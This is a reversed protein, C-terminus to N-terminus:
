IQCAKIILERWKVPIDRKIEVQGIKVPLVFAIEGAQVKKDRQMALILDERSISSPLVTPLGAQELLKKLRTAEGAALLGTHVALSAAAAMGIAVAEGHRYIRYETLAELAHGITHGLNLIARLGEEKEDKQVVGAKIRCSTSIVHILAEPELALVRPLNEELWSFFEADAIVGYKIVEALGSVLERRGLTNLLAPDILVLEPQYFSGIINKGQPHNVAVKGGISSDVQALLTTPIQIFPLGRLYTAAVFGALDGVVGGGLAIVPTHRTLGHAFALDYLRAAESLSKAEERDPIEGWIVQYNDTLHAAAIEQGYLNKVTPNTILFIKQDADLALNQLYNVLQKLIGQGIYIHYSNNGLDVLVDELPLTPMRGARPKNNHFYQLEGKDQLYAIILEVAKEPTNQGTDVRFGALNEYIEKRAAFLKKIQEQRDKAQSLLPRDEKHKVRRYIVAPDAVLYVFVGNQRLLAANVPNIVMGGGTAIVLKEQRALEKVLQSELERFHAEGERAFIQPITKGALEEIRTDTDIFERGLRSALLRGITSKGVGMFGYLVVNKGQL